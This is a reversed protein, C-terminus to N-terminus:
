YGYSIKNLQNCHFEPTPWVLRNIVQVTASGPNQFPPNTNPTSLAAFNKAQGRGSKTFSCGNIFDGTQRMWM